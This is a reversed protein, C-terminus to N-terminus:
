GVSETGVAVCGDVVGDAVDGAGGDVVVGAVAVVVSDVVVVVVAGGVGVIEKEFGIVDVVVTADLEVVAVVM